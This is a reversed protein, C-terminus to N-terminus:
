PIAGFVFGQPLALIGLFLVSACSKNKGRMRALRKGAEEKKIYLFLYVRLPLRHLHQM